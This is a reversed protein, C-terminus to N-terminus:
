FRFKRSVRDRLQRLQSLVSSSVKKSPQVICGSPACIEKPIKECATEPNTKKVKKKQLECKQVPWEECEEGINVVSDEGPGTSPAPGTPGLDGAQLQLPAGPVSAEASDPSQRRRRFVPGSPM